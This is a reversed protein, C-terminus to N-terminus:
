QWQWKRWLFPIAFLGFLLVFVIWPIAERPPLGSKLIHAVYIIDLVLVMPIALPFYEPDLFWGLLLASLISTTLFLTIVLLQGKGSTIKVPRAM